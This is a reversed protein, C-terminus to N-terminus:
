WGGKQRRTGKGGFENTARLSSPEQPDAVHEVVSSVAVGCKGDVAGTINECQLNYM